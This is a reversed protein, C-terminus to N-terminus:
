ARSRRGRRRFSSTSPLRGYGLPFGAGGVGIAEFEGPGQGQRGVTHLFAGRANFVRIAKTARNVVAISGDSLRWVGGINLFETYAAGDGGITIQPRDGFRWERLSQGDLQSATALILGASLICLNRMVRLQSLVDGRAMRWARITISMVVPM